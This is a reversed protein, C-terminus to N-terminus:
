YPRFGPRGPLPLTPQTQNPATATSPDAANEPTAVVANRTRDMASPPYIAASPDNNQKALEANAEMNIIAQEYTMNPTAQQQQQQAQQGYGTFQMSQGNITPTAGYSQGASAAGGFAENGGNNQAAGGSRMGGAAGPLRLPRQFNKQAGPTGFPNPPPPPVAPNPAGPAPAPAGPTGGGKVGNAEFTLNTITGFDDV